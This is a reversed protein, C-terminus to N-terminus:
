RSTPASSVTENAFFKEMISEYSELAKIGKDTIRYIHRRASAQEMKLFGKATLDNILEKGPKWQLATRNLIKNLVTEGDYVAKLLDRNIRWPHDPGPRLQPRHANIRFIINM